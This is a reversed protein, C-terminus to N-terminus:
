TKEQQNLVEVKKKNFFVSSLDIPKIDIPFKINLKNLIKRILMVSLSVGIVSLWFWGIPGFTDRWNPFRDFNQIFIPLSFPLKIVFSPFTSKLWGSLIIILPIVFILPKLQILSLSFLEPLFKDYEKSLEELKQQNKEKTAQSIQQQLEKSRQNIAKIKEKDVLLRVLIEYFFFYFFAIILIIFAPEFSLNFM